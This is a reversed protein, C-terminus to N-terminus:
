AAKAGETQRQRWLRQLKALGKGTVLTTVSDQLGHDPHPWNGLKVDLDGAEIREQYPENKRTVWGIQRLFAMLRNQGAGAGIIKAAAGVKIADHSLEVAKAFEVLPADTKIQHELEAAHELALQKAKYEGAWAIAAAAPDTFDPLAALAPANKLRRECEIFYDRVEFGKDTGSMMSVHKAADITLHYAAQPRGGPNEGKQAYVGSVFDRGEVLRARKIQAKMWNTFDKGVGLATHLERADVAQVEADAIQRPEISILANM